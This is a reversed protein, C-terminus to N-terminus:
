NKSNKFSSNLEIQYADIKNIETQFTLRSMVDNNESLRLYGKILTKLKKPIKEIFQYKFVLIRTKSFDKSGELKNEITKRELKM